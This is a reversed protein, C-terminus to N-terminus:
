ESLKEILYVLLDATVANHCIKEMLYSPHLPRAPVVACKGGVQGVVFMRQDGEYTEFFLFRYRTAHSPVDFDLYSSGCLTLDARAQAVVVEFSPPLDLYRGSLLGVPPESTM